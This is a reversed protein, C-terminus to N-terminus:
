APLPPLGRGGRGGRGEVPANRVRRALLLEVAHVTAVEVRLWWGMVLVWVLPSGRNYNHNILVDTTSKGFICVHVHVCVHLCTCVHM